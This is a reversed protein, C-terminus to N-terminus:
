SSQQSIAQATAGLLGSKGWAAARDFTKHKLLLLQLQDYADRGEQALFDDLGRKAGNSAPAIILVNVIAGCLELEKGFAYVVTDSGAAGM